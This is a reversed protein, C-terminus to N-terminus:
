IHNIYLELIQNKSLSHEIKVALLAENLKRSITKEKSLFYNRAVQMTITSAGERAGRASLNALAARAVSSYDVGGHEYFRDDEAALIAQQLAKPVAELKVVRRREEGFEGILTQDATYIMLPSVPQEETLVDLPPLKQYLLVSALGFLLIATCLLAAVTILVHFYWQRTM